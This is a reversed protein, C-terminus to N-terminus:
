PKTNRNALGVGIAVGIAVGLAVGVAINGMAVGLAAGLGAGIATWVGISIGAKSDDHDNRVSLRSLNSSCPLCVIALIRLVPCRSARDVAGASAGCWM